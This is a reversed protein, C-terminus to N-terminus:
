AGNKSDSKSPDCHLARPELVRSLSETLSFPKRVSVISQSFSPFKCHSAQDVSAPPLPLAAHIRDSNWNTHRPISLNSKIDDAIAKVVDIGASSNKKVREVMFNQAKNYLFPVNVSILHQTWYLTSNEPDKPDAFYESREVATTLSKFSLNTVQLSMRRTVPDIVSEELAYFYSVSGTFSLMFKPIHSTAEMLRVTRLHGNDDVVRSLIVTGTCHKLQKNPYKRMVALSVDEWKANIKDEYSM